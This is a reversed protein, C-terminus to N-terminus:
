HWQFSATRGMHAAYRLISSSVLELMQVRTNLFANNIQLRQLIAEQEALQARVAFHVARPGYGDCSTDLGCLFM